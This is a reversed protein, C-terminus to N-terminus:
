VAQTMSPSCFVRWSVSLSLLLLLLRQLWLICDKHVCHTHSSYYYITYLIHNQQLLLLILILLLIHYVTYSEATVFDSCVVM